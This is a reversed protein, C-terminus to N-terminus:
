DGPAGAGVFVLVTREEYTAIRSSQAVDVQAFGPDVEGDRRFRVTLEGPCNETERGRRPSLAIQRWNDGQAGRGFVLANSRACGSDLVISSPSRGSTSYVVKVNGEIPLSRDPGPELIEFAEPTGVTSILTHEGLHLVFQFPGPDRRDINAKYVFKGENGADHHVILPTSALAGQIWLSDSEALLVHARPEYHLVGEPAPPGAVVLLAVAEFESGGFDRVEFKAVIEQSALQHSSVPEPVVAGGCAVAAGALVLIARCLPLRVSSIPNAQTRIIM